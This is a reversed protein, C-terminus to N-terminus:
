WAQYLCLNERQESNYGVAECLALCLTSAYYKDFSHFRSWTELYLFSYCVIVKNKLIDMLGVCFM